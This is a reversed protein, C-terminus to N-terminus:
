RPMGTTFKELTIVMYADLHLAAMVVERLDLDTCIANPIQSYNSEKLDKNSKALYIWLLYRNKQTVSLKAQLLLHEKFGDASVSEQLDILM